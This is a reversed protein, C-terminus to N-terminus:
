RFPQYGVMDMGTDYLTDMSSSSAFNSSSGVLTEMSSDFHDIFRGCFDDEDYEEYHEFRSSIINDNLNMESDVENIFGEFSNAAVENVKGKGKDKQQKQYAERKKQKNSKPKNKGSGPAQAGDSGSHHQQQHSPPAPKPKQQQGQWPTAAAPGKKIVNTQNASAENQISSIRSALPRISSCLDIEMLIHQTVLEITFNAEATTQVLTLSMTFFDDPFCTLVFMAKFFELLNLGAKTM